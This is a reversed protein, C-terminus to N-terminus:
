VKKRRRTTVLVVVTPVMAALWVVLFNFDEPNM